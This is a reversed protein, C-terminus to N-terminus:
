LGDTRPELGLRAMTFGSCSRCKRGSGDRPRTGPPYWFASRHGCRVGRSNAAIASRPGPAVAGLAAPRTWAIFSHASRYRIGGSSNGTSAVDAISSAGSPHCALPRAGGLGWVRSLGGRQDEPSFRRSSREVDVIIGSVSVGLMRVEWRDVRRLNRVPLRRCLLPRGARVMRVRVPRAARPLPAGRRAANPAGPHVAGRHRNVGCHVARKRLAGGPWGGSAPRPARGPSILSGRRPTGLRPPLGVTRTLPAVARASAYVVGSTVSLAGRGSWGSGSPARPRAPLRPRTPADHQPAGVEQTVARHYASKGALEAFV